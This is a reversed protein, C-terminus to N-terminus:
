QADNISGARQLYEVLLNRGEKYELSYGLRLADQDTLDCGARKKLSERLTHKFRYTFPDLAFLWTYYDYALKLNGNHMEHYEAVDHMSSIYVEVLEERITGRFTVHFLEKDCLKIYEIAQEIAEKKDGIHRALKIIKARTTARRRITTSPKLLEVARKLAAISDRPKDLLEYCSALGEWISAEYPRLKLAQQYYFLGYIPMGMADYAAGLGSWPRSDKKNIDLAKRFSEIAAPYNSAEHYELGLLTWATLCTRDLLTARRFYKIAKDQEVRMSYYNGVICCVEPRNKDLLLFKEALATLKERSGLLHLINSYVDLDEIRDPDIRFMSEFQAEAKALEITDYLARGRQGMLWLNNPFYDAGLLKDCLQIEVNTATHLENMIKIQFIQPMPHDLPLDINTLADTLAISSDLCQGLLTWASWNWPCIALIRYLIDLAEPIRSLRHHFLAELFQLWVDTSGKVSDLLDNMATNTPLSPQHRTNDTKHWENLAKKESSIFRCYVSVFRAKASTCNQLFHTARHYQRAEMCKRAVNFVDEDREEADVEENNLWKQRHDNLEGSIDMPASTTEATLRKPAPVSLLLASLWKASAILGRETADALCRRIEAIIQSDVQSIVQM